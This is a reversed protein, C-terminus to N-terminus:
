RGVTALGYLMRFFSGKLLSPLRVNGSLCDRAYQSPEWWPLASTAGLLQTIQCRYAPEEGVSPEQQLTMRHLVEETCGGSGASEPSSASGSGAVFRWMLSPRAPEVRKLWAEKWFILCAAQCGGHASGDCRVNELHVCREMRRGLNDGTITDCTKHASRGVRFRHGCFELMEPMFALGDLEGNEDLTALIESKSRVEVLDGCRLFLANGDNVGSDSLACGPHRPQQVRCADDNPGM